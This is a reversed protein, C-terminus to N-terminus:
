GRRTEATLLGEAMPAMGTAYATLELHGGRDVHVAARHTRVVHRLLPDLPASEADTAASWTTDTDTRMDTM